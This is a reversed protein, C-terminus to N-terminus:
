AEAIEFEDDRREQRLYAQFAPTQPDAIISPPGQEVLTGDQLFVIHDAVKAAFDIDHTSIVMTMGSRALKRITANVERVLEPDLASTPEDFLLLHPQGALARAIAVRQQQGGSLEHPLRDAFGGLGVTKLAAFAKDRAIARSEGQVIM